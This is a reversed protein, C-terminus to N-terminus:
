KLLCNVMTVSISAFTSVRRRLAEVEEGGGSGSAVIVGNSVASGSSWGPVREDLARRCAGNCALVVDVFVQSPKPPTSPRLAEEEIRRSLNATITKYEAIITMQEDHKTLAERFMDKVKTLPIHTPFSFM